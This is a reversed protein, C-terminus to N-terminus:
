LSAKLNRIWVVALGGSIAASLRAQSCVRCPMSHFLLPGLANEGLFPHPLHDCDRFVFSKEETENEKRWSHFAM